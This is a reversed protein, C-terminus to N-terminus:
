FDKVLINFKSNLTKSFSSLTDKEVQNLNRIPTCYM